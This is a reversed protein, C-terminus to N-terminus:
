AHPSWGFECIGVAPVGDIELRVIAEHIAYAGHDLDFPFVAEVEVSVEHRKGREDVAFFAFEDPIVGPPALDDMATSDILTSPGGDIWFGATLPGVFDYRVQALTFAEGSDGVGSFWIHRRWTTWQRRGFSHDRVSRLSVAQEHDGLRVTGELVGVQEYHVTRIEGLQEFFRRSWRERALARATMTPTVGDSFDVLPSTGRFTVDLAADVTEGAQVLPGEFRVRLRQGPELVEWATGGAAWGEGRPYHPEPLEAIPQGPLRVSTWVECPADTRVSLRTAIALGDPARGYLYVSDNFYPTEPEVHLTELSSPSARHRRRSRVLLQALARKLM